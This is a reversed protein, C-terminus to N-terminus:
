LMSPESCLFSLRKLSRSLRARVAASSSMMACLTAKCLRISSSYSFLSLALFTDSDHSVTLEQVM